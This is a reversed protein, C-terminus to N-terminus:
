EALMVDCSMPTSNQTDTASSDNEDIICIDGIDLPNDAIIDKSGTFIPSEVDQGIGSDRSIVNESVKISDDQNVNTDYEQTAIVNSFVPSSLYGAPYSVVSSSSLTDQLALHPNSQGVQSALSTNDLSIQTNLTGNSFTSSM